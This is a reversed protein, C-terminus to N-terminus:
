NIRLSVLCSIENEVQFYYEDFCDMLNLSKYDDDCMKTAPDKGCNHNIEMYFFSSNTHDLIKKDWHSLFDINNGFKSDKLYDTFTKKNEKRKMFSDIHKLYFEFFKRIKYVSGISYNEGTNYYKFEFKDTDVGKEREFNNQKKFNFFNLKKLEGFIKDYKSSLFKDLQLVLSLIRSIEKEYNLVFFELSQNKKFNLYLNDNYDGNSGSFCYNGSLSSSTSNLKVQDLLDVLHNVRVMSKVYHPSKKMNSPIHDADTSLTESLDEVIKM